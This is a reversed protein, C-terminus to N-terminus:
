LCALLEEFILHICETGLAQPLPRPTLPSLPHPHLPKANLFSLLKWREQVTRLFCACNKMGCLIKCAKEKRLKYFCSRNLHSRTTTQMCKFFFRWLMIKYINWQSYSCVLFLVSTIKVVELSLTQPNRCDSKQRHLNEEKRKFPNLCWM